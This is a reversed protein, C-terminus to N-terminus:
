RGEIRHTSETQMAQGGILRTGVRSQLLMKTSRWAFHNLLFIKVLLLLVVHGYSIGGIGFKRVGLLVPRGAEGQQSIPIAYCM